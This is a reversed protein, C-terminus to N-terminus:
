FPENRVISESIVRVQGISNKQLQMGVAPSFPKYLFCLRVRVIELASGTEYALGDVAEQDADRCTPASSDSALTAFSNYRKTEVTISNQCDGLSRLKACVEDVFAARDFGGAQGTRVLRAAQQSAADVSATTMYFIGLELLTFVTALFIPAVLAFEVAVSGDEKRVFLGCDRRSKIM